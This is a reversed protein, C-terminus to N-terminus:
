CVTHHTLSNRLYMLEFKCVVEVYELEYKSDVIAYEGKRVHPMNCWNYYGHEISLPSESTNFIFGHTGTGNIIDSLNTIWSAKPGYWSLSTSDTQPAVFPLLILPWIYTSSFMTLDVVLLISLAAGSVVLATAAVFRADQM